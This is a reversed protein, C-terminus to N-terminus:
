VNTNAGMVLSWGLINLDKGPETSFKLSLVKGKGRLKNKTSVVVVGDDYDDTVDPPMWLRKRRYAQYPRSWRNSNPSDMWDWHAQLLCSSPNIPIITEGDDDYEFGTETRRFHTTIYTVQKSRQFDGGGNYGTVLYAAADVGVGDTTKWDLFDEDKYESFSFSVPNDSTVCLYRTNVQGATRVKGVIEVVDNFNMVLENGFYVEISTDKLGFPRVETPAILRPFGNEITNITNTSFAQISTDFVLEKTPSTSMLNPGYVWKVKKDSEDYEGNADLKDLNSISDYFSQITNRTMNSAQYTGLQDLSVVYIGDAAWYLASNNASVVSKGAICGRDTVKRVDYAEATFGSDDGGRIEWVGNEAFVLMSRAMALFSKIGYAGDLRIFGGDTAILENNDESTPDGEQYCEVADTTDSVLKSFFIYSGLRPSYEDGNIVESEFGGYWVRGAFSGVVSAGGPTVDGPLVDPLDLELDKYREMLAEYVLTRSQGRNLVDIIFSGMPATTTGLPNAVLDEPHFRLATRNSSEEPASYLASIVTDTNSPYVQGRRQNTSNVYFYRVPDQLQTGSSARMRPLGWGQNRLNYLHGSDLDVPRLDVNNGERLSVIPQNGRVKGYASVGFFDRTLLRKYDVEVTTGNYELVAISGVGSAVFLIGDVVAYSAKATADIASDGDKLEISTIYGDVLPSVDQDFFYLSPGVQVVTLKKDPVGGANDWTYETIALGDFAAAVDTQISQNSELDMGLRRQRSGDRSLVFNDEALSAGEPFTLPSVETILGRVFAVVEVPASTRGM